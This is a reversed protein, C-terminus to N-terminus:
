GGEVNQHPEPEATKLLYDNARKLNTLEVGQTRLARKLKDIEEKQNRIKLKHKALELGRVQDPPRRSPKERVRSARPM